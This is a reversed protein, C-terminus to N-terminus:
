APPEALACRRLADAFRPGLVRSSWLAEVVARGRAGLERAAARDDALRELAETWAADGQVLRGARGGDLIAASVGVPSAVAPVGCALYQLLKFGCKGRSWPDDSLPMIGADLSRLFPVEGAESWPTFEVPLGVLELPPADAMVAVVTEPRRRVLDGLAAAVFALYPRTSRSGIWGVRFTRRGTAVAPTGPEPTYRDTDIPTPAVLLPGRAAARALDALYPNGATVLDAAAVTRLFRRRRVHSEPRGRFPDRHLVADDFDYVLRRAHHRLHMLEFRMFLRRQLVVLDHAAFERFRAARRTFGKPVAAVDITGFGAARLHAEVARVRHRVVPGDSSEALVALRLSAGGRSTM